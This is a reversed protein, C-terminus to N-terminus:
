YPFLTIPYYNTQDREVLFQRLSFWELNKAVAEVLSHRLLRQALWDRDLTEQLSLKITM